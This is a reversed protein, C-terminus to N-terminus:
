SAHQYKLYFWSEDGATIHLFHTRQTAELARLPEGCKAIRVQRLDNTLQHSVWNLHFIKMGLSNHLRSLVTEPSVHLGPGALVGFLITGEGLM